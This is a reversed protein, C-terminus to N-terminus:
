AGVLEREARVWDELANGNAGGRAVFLEFARRAIQERTPAPKAAVKTAVVETKTEAIATTPAAPKAAAAAKPAKEAAKTEAKAEVPTEAKATKKTTTKEAAAKPAAATKKTAMHVDGQTVGEGYHGKACVDFPDLSTETRVRSTLFV